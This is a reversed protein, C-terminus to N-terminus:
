RTQNKKSILVVVTRANVKYHTGKHVIEAGMEAIDLPSSLSTDIACYWKEVKIDPLEFELGEWYMNFMVHIDQGDAREGLTMALALGNPDYWGSKRLECGHWLIDSLGSKNIESNDYKNRLLRPHAKRFAILRQWFQM